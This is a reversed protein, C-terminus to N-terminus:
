VMHTGQTHFSPCPFSLQNTCWRKDIGDPQQNGDFWVALSFYSSCPSSNAAVHIAVVADADFCSVTSTLIHITAAIWDQNSEAEDHTM